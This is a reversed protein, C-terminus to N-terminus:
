DQSEPAPGLTTGPLMSVPFEIRENNELERKGSRMEQLLEVARAGIQIEDVVVSSIRQALGEGRFTGSFSILSLDRPVKLGFEEAQLYIQEAHSIHGCFIATPRPQSSLLKELARHMAEGTREEESKGGYQLMVLSGDVTRLADRLGREYDAVMSSRRAFLFGVHRHGFEVFALGSQHGVSYGSWTVCPASVGEISRHCLVVPIHSRQLQKIQYDPTAASTAPVLAVGGVSRYIMQLVLDGQRGIENGSNSVVVQHQSTASAQEFGHVLSPYIGERLQPAILAFTDLQERSKRQQSTTVFTGRGPIRNIVGDNELEAMAQRITSRSLGLSKVLEAETPLSQGPALRGSHIEARFHDRVKQYKPRPPSTEAPGAHEMVGSPVTM